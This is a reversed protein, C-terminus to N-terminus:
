EDNSPRSLNEGRRVSEINDTTAWRAASRIRSCCLSEDGIPLSLFNERLLNLRESAFIQRSATCIKKLCKLCRFKCQLGAHLNQVDFIYELQNQESSLLWWHRKILWEQRASKDNQFKLSNLECPTSALPPQAILIQNDSNPWRPKYYNQTTRASAQASFILRSSRASYKPRESCIDRRSAQRGRRRISWASLNVRRGCFFVVKRDSFGISKFFNQVVLWFNDGLQHFKVFFQCSPNNM